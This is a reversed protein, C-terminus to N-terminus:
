DQTTGLCRVLPMQPRIQNWLREDATWLPGNLRMALAVYIADYTAPLHHAHALSLAESALGADDGPM